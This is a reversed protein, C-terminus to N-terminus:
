SHEATGLHGPHQRLPLLGIGTLLLLPSAHVVGLHSVVHLLRHSVTEKKKQDSLCYDDLLGCLSIHMHTHTHATWDCPILVGPPHRPALRPPHSSTM